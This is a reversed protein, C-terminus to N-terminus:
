MYVYICIYNCQFNYIMINMYEYIYIYSIYTYIYRYIYMDTYMQKCAAALAESHGLLFTYIYTIYDHMTYTHIYTQNKSGFCRIGYYIYIYICIHIYINSQTYM